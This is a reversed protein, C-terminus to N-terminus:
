RCGPSSRELGGATLVLRDGGVVTRTLQEPHDPVGVRREKGDNAIAGPKVREGGSDQDFSPPIGLGKRHELAGPM